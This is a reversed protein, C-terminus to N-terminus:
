EYLIVGQMHELELSLQRIRKGYSRKVDKVKKTSAHVLKVLQEEMYDEHESSFEVGMGEKYYDLAPLSGYEVDGLQTPDIGGEHVFRPTGYKVLM